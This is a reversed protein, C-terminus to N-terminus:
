GVNGNVVGIVVGIVMTDWISLTTCLNQHFHFLNTCLCTKWLTELVTFM